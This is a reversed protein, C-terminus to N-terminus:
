SLSDGAQAVTTGAAALGIVGATKKLFNRREIKTEKM